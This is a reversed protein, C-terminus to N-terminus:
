KLSDFKSQLAAALDMRADWVAAPNQCYSTAGLYQEYGSTKITSFPMWSEKQDETLVSAEGCLMYQKQNKPEPLYGIRVARFKTPVPKHEKFDTAASTILFQVISDPVAENPKATINTQPTETQKPTQNCSVVFMIAFVITLIRSLIQM